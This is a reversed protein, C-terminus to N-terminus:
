LGIRKNIKSLGLSLPKWLLLVVVFNGACHLLDFYFGSLIWAAAGVPGMTFWYPVSCLVGFLLGFIGAVLAWVFASNSNGIMRVILYLIIWVYLYALWWMGFGFLIGELLVFVYIIYPTQKKVHHTFLIVLLTVPEINPLGSVAFQLAAMLAACIGIIAIDKIISKTNVM